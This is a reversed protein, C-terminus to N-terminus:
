QGGETLPSLRLTYNWDSFWARYPLPDTDTGFYKGFLRRLMNVPSEDAPFLDPAGPTRAAIFTRFHEARDALSYRLGHDSWLVVVADPDAAVIREVAELVLRNLVDLQIRIREGYEDVSFRLEETTAQWFSCHDPFCDPMRSQSDTPVLAFPPHPSQVQTLMLRRTGDKREAVAATTELADRIAAAQSDLLLSAAQSRMLQTLPSSVIMTAELETIYGNDIYEDAASTLGTTTIPVPIAVIEYGRARPIELLRAQNILAYLWRIHSDDDTPIPQDGLMDDIYAGNLLSALTLWTKNYNSHAEGSIEFGMGELARLFAGNDYEFTDRLTDARPYGDLMILYMNPGGTGSVQYDPAHVVAPETRTAQYASVAMVALYALAFIGGARATFAPIQRTLPPQGAARRRSQVLWYWFAVAVFVAAIHAQRLVFLVVISAVTPSWVPDRILLWVVVAVVTAAISVLVLPRGLAGTASPQEVFREFVVAAAFIVPQVQTLLREVRSM